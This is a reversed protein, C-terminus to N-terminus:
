GHDVMTLGYRSGPLAMLQASAEAKEEEEKRRREEELREQARRQRARM